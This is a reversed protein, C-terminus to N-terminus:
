KEREEDNNLSWGTPEYRAFPTFPIMMSGGLEDSEAPRFFVPPDHCSRPEARSPREGGTM